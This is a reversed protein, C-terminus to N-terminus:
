DQELGFHKWPTKCHCIDRLNEQDVRGIIERSEKEKMDFSKYHGRYWSIKLEKPIEEYDIVEKQNPWGSAKALKKSIENPYRELNELYLDEWPGEKSETIYWEEINDIENEYETLHFSEENNLSRNLTIMILDDRLKYLTNLQDLLPIKWLGM